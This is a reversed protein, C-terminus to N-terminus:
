IRSKFLPFEVEILKFLRFLDFSSQLSSHALISRFRRTAKANCISFGSVLAFNDAGFYESNQLSKAFFSGFKAFITCSLNVSNTLNALSDLCRDRDCENSHM